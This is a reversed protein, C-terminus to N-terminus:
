SVRRWKKIAAALKCIGEGTCWFLVVILIVPWFFIAAAATNVDDQNYESANGWLVIMVSVAVGALIYLVAILVITM